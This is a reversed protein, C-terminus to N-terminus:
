AIQIWKPKTSQNMKMLENLVRGESQGFNTKPNFYEQNSKRNETQLLLVSHYDAAVELYDFLMVNFFFFCFLVSINLRLFLFYLRFLIDIFELNM